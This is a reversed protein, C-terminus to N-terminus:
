QYSAFIRIDREICKHSMGNSHCICRCICRKSPRYGQGSPIAVLRIYLFQELYGFLEKILDNLRRLLCIRRSLILVEWSKASRNSIAALPSRFSGGCSKDRAWRLTVDALDFSEFRLSLSRPALM